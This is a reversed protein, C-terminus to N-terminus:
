FTRVSLGSGAVENVYAQAASIQHSAECHPCWVSLRMARMKNLTKDDTEISTEVERNKYPCRYRLHSM